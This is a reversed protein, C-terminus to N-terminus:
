FFIMYAAGIIALVQIIAGFTKRSFSKSLLGGTLVGAITLPALVLNFQLTNWNLFGLNASLPIKLLTVAFFCYVSTGIIERVELGLSSYYMAWISGGSNTMMSVFGAFSGLMAAYWMRVKGTNIRGSATKSATALEPHRSVYVSLAVIVLLLVGIMIRLFDDADHGFNRNIYKALQWAALTGAVGWPLAKLLPRWTVKRQFRAIAVIDGLIYLPIMFGLATGASFLSVTVPTIVIGLGIIGTKSFGALFAAVAVVVIQATSLHFGFVEHM